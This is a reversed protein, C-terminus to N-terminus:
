SRWLKMWPSFMSLAKLPREFRLRPQKPAGGYEKKAWYELPPTPIDFRKCIKKLGVDSVGLEPAVTRMARTWVRDYLDQRTLVIIEGNQEQM